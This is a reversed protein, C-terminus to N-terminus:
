ESVCVPQQRVPQQGRMIPSLAPLKLASGAMVQHQKLLHPLEANALMMTCHRWCFAGWGHRM